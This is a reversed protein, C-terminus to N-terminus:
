AHQQFGYKTSIPLPAYIPLQSATGKTGYDNIIIAYDAVTVVRYVPQGKFMFMGVFRTDAFHLCQASPDGRLTFLGWEFRSPEGALVPVFHAKASRYENRRHPLSTYVYTGSDTIWDQGDINLELSLQDNHAHGGNGNQGISGCRIALHLRQSRFLYVGFDSYAALTLGNLLSEGEVPIVLPPAPDLTPLSAEASLIRVTAARNIITPTPLYSGRCLGRVLVAEEGEGGGFLAEITAILHQHDLMQEDWYIAGAFLATYGQLNTYRATASAVTLQEYVPALKFWRGSDNDGIQPVFGNPKTLDRTFEAMRAIRHGYWDPFHTSMPAPALPPQVRHLRHDYHQLAAQKDDSLGLVLATAYAVMEASLRHYCTSAEFNAGDESFQTQVQAILQQISFALWNDVEPSTPLYVAVFLLGVVDALYHNGRLETSWELNHIIHDGHQYVSRSLEHEFSPAFQAGAARFLDYTILWNAVRIAVDMSTCWNVGYRPPNTAIFDLIQNQFERLYVEAPHFDAHGHQALQYAYALQPLHQMRALEWPVKVDVGLQHGYRIKRYWTRESWRYGSIFDLHWDIPVYDEDVLQWIRQATRLNSRNIRGVLWRGQTDSHVAQGISYHHGELGRCVMGHKVQVWGSGLLDFHHNLALDSLAKVQQPTGISVAPTYTHLPQEIIPSSYTPMSGDRWRRLASRLRRM